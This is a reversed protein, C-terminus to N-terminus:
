GYLRRVIVDDLATRGEGLSGTAALFEAREVVLFESDETTQVSATRLLDRLLGIEGFFEGPGETRLLRGNQTVQVQGSVIVYFRDSASGEALVTSGAPLQQRSCAHALRELAHAPLDAFVSVGRLLELEPPATLRRDLQRMQPLLLLGALLTVGGAVALTGRLGIVKELYPALLCGLAMPAILASEIAAYIRSLMEPPAIRQPITEFGLGGIPDSLGMVVLVVILTAPSPFLALVM